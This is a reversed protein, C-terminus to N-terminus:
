LLGSWFDCPRSTTSRQRHHGPDYASSWSRGAQCRSQIFCKCVERRARTPCRGCPQCDVWPVLRTIISTLRRYTRHDIYILSVAQFSHLLRADPMHLQRNETRAWSMSM